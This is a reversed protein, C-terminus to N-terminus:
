KLRENMEKYKEEDFVGIEESHIRYLMLCTRAEAFSKQKVFIDFWNLNEQISRKYIQVKFDDYLAQDFTGAEIANSEWVNLAVRASYFGDRKITQKLHFLSQAAYRELLKQAETKEVRQEAAELFPPLMLVSLVLIIVVSVDRITFLNCKMFHDGM